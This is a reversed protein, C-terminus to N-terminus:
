PASATTSIGMLYNSSQSEQVDLSSSIIEDASMLEFMFQQHNMKIAATVAERPTGVAGCRVM